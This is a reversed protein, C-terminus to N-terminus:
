NHQKSITVQSSGAASDDGTTAIQQTGQTGCHEGEATSVSAIEEAAGAEDRRVQAGGEAEQANERARSVRREVTRQYTAFSATWRNTMM